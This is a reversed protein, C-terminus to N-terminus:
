PTPDSRSSSSELYRASDEDEREGRMDKIAGEGGRGERSVLGFSGDALRGAARDAPRGEADEVALLAPAALAHLDAAQAGGTSDQAVPEVLVVVDVPGRAGRRKPLDAVLDDLLLSGHRM